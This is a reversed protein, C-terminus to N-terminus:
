KKKVKLIPLIGFLYVKGNKIKSLTIFHLLKTDTHELYQEVRILTKDTGPLCYRDAKMIVKRTDIQDLPTDHKHELFQLVEPRYWSAGWWHITYTDKTVCKPDFTERCRFPIFTGEPYVNIDKYKILKQKSRVPYPKVTYLKNFTYRFLQPMTYIPEKWIDEEYFDLITKLVKNGKQAGLIAPEVFDNVGDAESDQIGVFAPDKLFKDLPKVVSVDTDLYVGGNEYLVKIRIYDAVYAWMHQDYVTKFWKNSKLEKQFDFYKKSDENIEIIEYDPCITRWTQICALVDRRKPDNVGWVYFIRKPIM